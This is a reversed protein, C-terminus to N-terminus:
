HGNTLSNEKGSNMGKKQKTEEKEQEYASIVEIVEIAALLPTRRASSESGLERFPVLVVEMGLSHFDNEHRRVLILSSKILVVLFHRPKGKRKPHTVLLGVQTLLVFNGTNWRQHNNISGRSGGDRGISAGGHCVIRSSLLQWPSRGSLYASYLRFIRAYQHIAKEYRVSQIFSLM